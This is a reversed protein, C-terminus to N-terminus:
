SDGALRGAESGQQFASLATGLDRAAGAPGDDDVDEETQEYALRPNLHDGPSRQPLPSRPAKKTEEAPPAQTTPWARLDDGSIQTVAPEPPDVFWHGSTTARRVRLGGTDTVPSRVPGSEPEVDAETITIRPIVLTTEEDSPVERVSRERNGRAELSRYVDTGRHTGNRGNRPTDQAADGIVLHNPVRVIALIGGYDSERLAVKFGFRKVLSAIVWFGLQSGDGIAMVDVEPPAALMTNVRERRDTPIGLGRDEVEVIVGSQAPMSRVLVEYSPPSFRAANELLEAILHILGTVADSAIAVDPVVGKLKVRQYEHTESIASRLVDRMRVPGPLHHGLDGGSLIILNESNRRARTAEHDLRYLRDLAASDQESQELSDLLSLLNYLPLQNRRAIGRFVTNLANRAQAEGAAATVAERLAASIATAVQEIEDGQGYRLEPLEEEPDVAEGGRLRNVIAPLRAGVLDQADMRLKTLRTVLASDVLVSSQRRAWWISGIVVLLAVVLAIGLQLLQTNGDSLAQASVEDAQTITMDTLGASVTNTLNQWSQATLGLSNPVGNTWAGHGIISNEAALLQQWATSASLQQYQNQVDPRLDPETTDLLAHYAGVLSAFQLHDAQSLKGAALAGAILSGARSSLDSIHFISTAAIAGPVVSADPVVRAQTGFLNTAADLLGNYFSSVEAPAPSARTSGAM